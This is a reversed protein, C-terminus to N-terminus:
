AKGTTLDACTCSRPVIDPVECALSSYPSFGVRPYSQEHLFANEHPLAIVTAMTAESSSLTSADLVLELQM